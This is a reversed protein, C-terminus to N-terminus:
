VEAAHEKRQNKGRHWYVVDERISQYWVSSDGFISISGLDMKCIMKSIRKGVMIQSSFSEPLPVRNEELEGLHMASLILTSAPEYMRAM